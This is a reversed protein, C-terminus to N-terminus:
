KLDEFARAANTKMADKDFEPTYEMRILNAEMYNFPSLSGFCLQEDSIVNRMEAGASANFTEFQTTDFYTNKREKILGGFHEGAAFPSFCTVFVHVKDNKSLLAFYDEDSINNYTDLNSRGRFNEFGSCIRIPVDLEEALDLVWKARHKPLYEDYLMEPALSYGHYIPALEFGAFGADIMDRADKEWAPYTPNVIAMPLFTTKGRHEKLENLLELNAANADKYFFGNLNAVVMHTIEYKRALIDLEQLTNYKLNRFPWHGVYTNIDIFM